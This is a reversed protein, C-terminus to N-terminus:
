KGPVLGNETYWKKLYSGGTSSVTMRVPKSTNKIRQPNPHSFDRFSRGEEERCGMSGSKITRRGNPSRTGGPRM